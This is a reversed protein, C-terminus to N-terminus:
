ERFAANQGPGKTLPRVKALEVAVLVQLFPRM